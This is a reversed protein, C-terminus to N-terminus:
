KRVSNNRKVDIGQMQRLYELLAASFNKGSKTFVVDEEGNKRYCKIQLETLEGNNLKEVFTEMFVSKSEFLDTYRGSYAAKQFFWGRSSNTLRGLEFRVVEQVKVMAFPSSTILNSYFLEYGNRDILHLKNVCSSNFDIKASLLRNLSGGKAKHVSFACLILCAVVFIKRMELM